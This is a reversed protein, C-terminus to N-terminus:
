DMANSNSDGTALFKWLSRRPFNFLSPLASFLILASQAKRM